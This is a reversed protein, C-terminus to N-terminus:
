DEPVQGVDLYREGFEQDTATSRTKGLVKPVRVQGRMNTIFKTMRRSLPHPNSRARENTINTLRKNDIGVRDVRPGFHVAYNDASPQAKLRGPSAGAVHPDHPAPSNQVHGDANGHNALQTARPKRYKRM